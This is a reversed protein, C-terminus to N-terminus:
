ACAVKAALSELSPVCWTPNHARLDEDKYSGTGVAVVRAGISQGCEIDHPTDGIVLVEDPKLKCKLMESARDRAVAAIECRNESDDGFGGTGFHEWLGYHMLKIQAGLRINGTLLGLLPPNPLARLETIWRHVGPMVRGAIQPILHDLWFVYAEFFKEFNRATAPIGHREFMERVIAPDCRGAFKLGSTGQPLNFVSRAVQGFAREGAGGTHLLTGDIDFLVVRVM